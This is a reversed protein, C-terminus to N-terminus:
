GFGRFAEKAITTLSPNEMRKKEDLTVLRERNAMEPNTGGPYGAHHMLYLRTGITLVTTGIVGVGFLLQKARPTKADRYLTVCIHAIPAAAIPGLYIWQRERVRAMVVDNEQPSTTM